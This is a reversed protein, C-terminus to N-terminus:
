EKCGWPNYGLSRPWPIEGPLVGPAVQWKRRCPDEWCLSWICKEQIPLLITQWPAGSSLDIRNTVVHLQWFILDYATYLLITTMWRQKGPSRQPPPHKVFITSCCHWKLNSKIWYGKRERSWLSPFTTELGYLSFLSSIWQKSAREWYFWM